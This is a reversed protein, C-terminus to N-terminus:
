VSFKRVAQNSAFQPHIRFCPQPVAFLTWVVVESVINHLLMNVGLMHLNLVAAINTLFERRGLMSQPLVLSRLM